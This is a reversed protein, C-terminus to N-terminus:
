IKGGTFRASTGIKGASRFARTLQAGGGNHIRGSVKSKVNPGEGSKEISLKAETTKKYLSAGRSGKIPAKSPAGKRRQVGEKKKTKQNASKNNANQTVSPSRVRSM